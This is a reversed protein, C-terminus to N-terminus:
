KCRSTDLSVRFTLDRCRLYARSAAAFQAAIIEHEDVHPLWVREGLHQGVAGALNEEEGEVHFAGVWSAITAASKAAFHRFSPRAWVFGPSSKAFM